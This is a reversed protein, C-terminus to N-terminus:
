DAVVAMYQRTRNIGSGVCVVLARRGRLPKLHGNKRIPIDALRYGGVQSPYLPMGNNASFSMARFKKLIEVIEKIQLTKQSSRPPLNGIAHLRGIVYGSTAMDLRLTPEKM